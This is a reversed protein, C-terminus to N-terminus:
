QIELGRRKIGRGAARDASQFRAQLVSDQRVIFLTLSTRFPEFTHKLYCLVFVKLYKFGANVKMSLFTEQFPIKKGSHCSGVRNEGGRGVQDWIEDSPGRVREGM